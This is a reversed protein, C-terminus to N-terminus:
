APRQLAARQPDKLAIGTARLREAEHVYHVIRGAAEAYGLGERRVNSICNREADSRGSRPEWTLYVGLSDPSSLGPREGILLVTLRANLAQGVEDALAVRANTLIPILSCAGPILPLTADLLALGHREVALASLGDALLFLVDCRAQEQQGPQRRSPEDLARGLDPRLLYSKRDAAASRLSVGELGRERLGRQLMAVDLEAHVADRALAHDLQFRLQERTPISSGTRGLSIRASTLQPKELESM